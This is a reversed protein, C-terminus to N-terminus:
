EGERPLGTDTVGDDLFLQVAATPWSIEVLDGEHVDPAAASPVRAILQHGIKSELLYQVVDGLFSEGIIRVVSRNPPEASAIRTGPAVAAVSVVEPRIAALLTDQATFGAAATAPAEITFSENSLWPDGNDGTRGDLTVRYFNQKGIFGAVFTNAPRAYIDEAEGLQQVVGDYMVVIRDSMALAEEQDHTVFIFTLGLQTHLRILELQMEERLKRDLASM